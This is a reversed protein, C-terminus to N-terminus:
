KKRDQGLMKAAVGLFGEKTTPYIRASHDRNVAILWSGDRSLKVPDVSYAVEFDGPITILKEGSSSDWVSISRSVDGDKTVLALKTGDESFAASHIQEAFDNLTGTTKPYSRWIAASWDNQVLLIRAEGNQVWAARVDGSPITGVETSLPEVSKASEDTLRSLDWIKVQRKDGDGVTLAASGDATIAVVTSDGALTRVLPKCLNGLDWLAIQGFRHMTLVRQNGPLFVVARPQTWIAVDGPRGDLALNCKGSTATLSEGTEVDWVKPVLSGEFIGIRTADPSFAMAHSNLLREIVNLKRLSRGTKLDWITIVTSSSSSDVTAARTGDPSLVSLEVTGPHERLVAAADERVGYIRARGGDISVVYANGGAVAVAAVGHDYGSFISKLSTPPGVYIKASDTTFDQNGKVRPDVLFIPSGDNSFGKFSPGATWPNTLVAINNALLEDQQASTINSGSDGVITLKNDSGFAMASVHFSFPNEFSKTTGDNLNKLELRQFNSSLMALRQGDNDLAIVFPNGLVVNTSVPKVDDTLDWVHLVYPSTEEVVALRTGNPSFSASRVFKSQSRHFQSPMPGVEYSKEFLPTSDWRDGTQANWLNWRVKNERRDFMEVFLTKADPSIQVYTVEGQVGRLPLGDEVASVAAVLGSIVQPAPQSHRFDERAAKVAIDLAEFERGPTKALVTARQGAEQRATAAAREKAERELGQARRTGAEALSKQTLADKAEGQATAATANATRADGEAIGKDKVALATEGKAQDAVGQATTAAAEAKIRKAEAQAAKAVQVSSVALSALVTLAIFAFGAILSLRLVQNRRRYRSANKLQTITEPAPEGCEVNKTSESIWTLGALEPWEDKALADDVSIPHIPRKSEKFIEVEERVYRSAAAGETGILVLATSSRVKEKLSEPMNRNVDTGLQDLFCLYGQESMAVALAMAYKGSDSRSYSIFIDDGYFFRHLRQKLGKPHPPSTEYADDFLQLQRTL